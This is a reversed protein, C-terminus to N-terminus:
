RYVHWKRTPGYIDNPDFPRRRASQLCTENCCGQWKIAGEKSCIFLKNCDLNACNLYRDCPIGTIECRTLAVDEKKNVPVALRDDFVFCKGTYHAGGEKQAYNIIGGHLQYVDKFGKKEMLLSFKECRIGGTCYM